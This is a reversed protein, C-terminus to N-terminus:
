VRQQIKEGNGITGMKSVESYIYACERFLKERLFLSCTADSPRIRPDCSIDRLMNEISELEKEKNKLLKLLSEFKKM